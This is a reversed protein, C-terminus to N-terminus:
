SEGHCWRDSSEIENGAGDAVEVVYGGTGQGNEALTIQDRALVGTYGPPQQRM